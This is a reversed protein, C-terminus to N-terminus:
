AITTRKMFEFINIFLIFPIKFYNNILSLHSLVKYALMVLTFIGLEFIQNGSM